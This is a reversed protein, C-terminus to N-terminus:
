KFTVKKTLDERVGGNLMAGGWGWGPAGVGGRSRNEGCCVNGEFTM